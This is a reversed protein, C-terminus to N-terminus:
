DLSVRKISSCLVGSGENCPSTAHNVKTHVTFKVIDQENLADAINVHLSDDQTLDVAKTADQM